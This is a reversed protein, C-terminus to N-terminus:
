MSYMVNGVQVHHQEVFGANVELVYRAPRSPKYTRPYSDPSVNPEIHVVTGSADLWLIDISFKMDKMWFAYADDTPFVFLMGENDALAERGGLGRERAVPTDAVFIKLQTGAIKIKASPPQIMVSTDFSGFHMLQYGAVAGFLLIFIVFWFVRKM